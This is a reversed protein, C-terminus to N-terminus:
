MKFKIKPAEELCHNSDSIRMVIGGDEVCRNHTERSNYNWSWIAGVLGVVAAAACFGSLLGSVMRLVTRSADDAISSGIAFAIGMIISVVCIIIFIQTLGM